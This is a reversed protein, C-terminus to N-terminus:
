CGRGRELSTTLPHPWRTTHGVTLWGSSWRGTCSAAGCSGMSSTALYSHLFLSAVTFTIPSKQQYVKYCIGVEKRRLTRGRERERKRERGGERERKKKGERGRERGGERERMGEM